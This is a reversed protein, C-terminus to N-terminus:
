DLYIEYIFFGSESIIDVAGAAGEYQGIGGVVALTQTTIWHMDDVDGMVMLKDEEIEKDDSSTGHIALTFM